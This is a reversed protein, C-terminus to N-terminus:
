AEPPVSYRYFHPTLEGAEFFPGVVSGAVAPIARVDGAIASEPMAQDQRVKVKADQRSTDLTQLALQPQVQLNGTSKDLAVVKGGLVDLFRGSSLVMPSVVGTKLPSFTEISGTKPDFAQVATSSATFPLMGPMGAALEEGGVLFLKGDHTAKGMNARPVFGQLQGGDLFSWTDTAPDFSMAVPQMPTGNNLELEPAPSWAGGTKSVERGGFVYVKGEVAGYAAGALALPPESVKKWPSGRASADYLYATMVPEDGQEPLTTAIFLARNEDLDIGELAYNAEALQQPLAVPTYTDPVQVGNVKGGPKLFSMEIPSFDGKDAVVWSRGGVSGTALVNLVGDESHPVTGAYDQFIPRANLNRIVLPFSSSTTGSPVDQGAKFKAALKGLELGSVAPDLDLVYQGDELFPYTDLRPQILDDLVRMLTRTGYKRSSVAEGLFDRLRDTMGDFGFEYGEQQRTAEILKEFSRDLKAAAITAIDAQGLEDMGIVNSEGVRGVMQTPMERMASRTYHERRQEVSMTDLAPDDYGANTTFIIVGGKLEDVVKNNLRYEGKDVYNAFYNYIEHQLAKRAKEDLAAGARSLEDVLIVPTEGAKALTEPTVPEKGEGYGVFGQASGKWRNLDAASSIETCDFVIPVANPDDNLIRALAEAGSTKGVGSPGGLVLAMPKPNQVRRSLSAELTRELAAKFLPQGVVQKDLQARFADIKGRIEAQRPNVVPDDSRLQVAATDAASVRPTPNLLERLLGRLALVDAAHDPTSQLVKLKEQVSAASVDRVDGFQQQVLSKYLPPLSDVGFSVCRGRAIPM